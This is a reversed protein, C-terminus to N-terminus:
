QQLCEKVFPIGEQIAKLLLTAVKVWNKAEIAEIIELIIGIKQEPHDEIYKLICKAVEVIGNSVATAFCDNYLAEASEIIQPLIEIIKLYDKEQLACILQVIEERIPVLHDALCEMIDNMENKAPAATFAIAFLTVFLAFKM